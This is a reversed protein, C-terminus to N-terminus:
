EFFLSVFLGKLFTQFGGFHLTEAVLYPRTASSVPLKCSPRFSTKEYYLFIKIQSLGCCFIGVVKVIVAFKFWFKKSM